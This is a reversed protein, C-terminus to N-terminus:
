GPRADNCRIISLIWPAEHAAIGLSPVIIKGAGSKMPDHRGIIGPRAASTKRAFLAPSKEFDALLDACVVLRPFEQLLEDPQNALYDLGFDADGPLRPCDQTTAASDADSGGIAM